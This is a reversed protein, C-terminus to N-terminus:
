LGQYVDSNRQSCVCIIAGFKTLANINILDLNPNSDGVNQKNAASNFGKTSTLFKNRSLIM